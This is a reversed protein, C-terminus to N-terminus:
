VGRQRQLPCHPTPLLGSGHGASYFWCVTWGLGLGISVLRDSRRWGQPSTRNPSRLCCGDDHPREVYVRIGAESASYGGLKAGPIPVTSIQIKRSYWWSTALTSAAVAVLYLVVGKERLFYVIPISILTGFLAGLVGVKALDAIRRTGQILAGQGGSVLRLLVAISLLSIAQGQHNNGFTLVSVQKSFVVLLAAGVVGLVISTRRLVSTTLAIRRTDDSGVAEAIQRVGSSNIGMGAINFALDSISGYLGALGFGSPGLLMAMIKTRFIGIAINLGSSGGVLASSKLIQAYTHKEVVAAPGRRPLPEPSPLPPQDDCLTSPM